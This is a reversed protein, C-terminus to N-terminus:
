VEEVRDNYVVRTIVVEKPPDGVVFDSLTLTESYPSSFATTGFVYKCEYYMDDWSPSGSLRFAIYPIIDYITSRLGDPARFETLTKGSLDVVVVKM